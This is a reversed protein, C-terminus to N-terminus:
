SEVPQLRYRQPKSAFLASLVRAPLCLWSKSQLCGTIKARWHTGDLRFTPPSMELRASAWRYRDREPKEPKLCNQFANAWPFCLQHLVVHKLLRPHKPHKPSASAHPNPSSKDRESPTWRGGFLQLSCNQRTFAQDLLQCVKLIPAKSKPSLGDLSVSKSVNALCCHLSM